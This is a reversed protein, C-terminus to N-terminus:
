MGFRKKVEDMLEETIEKSGKAAAHEEIAMLAMGRVLPPIKELRKLAGETWNFKFGKKGERAEKTEFVNVERNSILVNAAAARLVNEATTGMPSGAVRHMGFRGLVVFSAGGKRVHKVIEDFAKGALLTTTIEAGLEKAVECARELYSEYLRALGSDIIEDHLKEQEEFKFLRAARV